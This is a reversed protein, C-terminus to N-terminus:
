REYQYEDVFLSVLSWLWTLFLDKPAQHFKARKEAKLMMYDMDLLVGAYRKM